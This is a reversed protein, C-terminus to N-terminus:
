ILVWVENKLRRWIIMGSSMCDYVYDLAEHFFGEEEQGRRSCVQGRQHAQPPDPRVREASGNAGRVTQIM